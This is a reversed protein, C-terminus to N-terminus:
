IRLSTMIRLAARIRFMIVGINRKKSGPATLYLVKNNEWLFLMPFTKPSKRVNPIRIEFCFVFGLFKPRSEIQHHLDHTEVVDSPQTNKSLNRWQFLMPFTKSSKRVNSIRIEFFSFLIFFCPGLGSRVTFVVYRYSGQHSLYRCIHEGYSYCLFISLAVNRRM